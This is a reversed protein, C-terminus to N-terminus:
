ETIAGLQNLQFTVKEIHHRTAERLREADIYSGPGVQVDGTVGELVALYRRGSDLKAWLEAANGLDDVKM